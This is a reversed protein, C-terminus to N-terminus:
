IIDTLCKSKECLIGYQPNNPQISLFFPKGEDNSSIVVYNIGGVFVSIVYKVQFM